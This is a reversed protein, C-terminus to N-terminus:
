PVLPSRHVRREATAEAAEIAAQAALAAVDSGDMDESISDVVARAAQAAALRAAPSVVPVSVSDGGSGSTNSSTAAGSGAGASNEPQDDTPQDSGSSATGAAGGGHSAGPVTRDERNEQTDNDTDDPASDNADADSDPQVTPERLLSRADMDVLLGLVDLSQPGRSPLSAGAAASSGTTKDEDEDDGEDGEDASDRDSNGNDAGNSAAIADAGETGGVTANSLGRNGDNNGDDDDADNDEDEDEDGAGAVEGVGQAGGDLDYGVCSEAAALLQRRMARISSYSPLDLQFTCTHASPLAGDPNDRGDRMVTFPMAFGADNPPLRDRAWIFRLVQAQRASPLDALIKFLWDVLHPHRDMGQSRTNRRLLEVDMRDVGCITSRLELWPLLRLGAMPVISGLGRAISRMGWALEAARARVALRCFLLAEASTRGVTVGRGGPLLELVAGPTSSPVSFTQEYLVADLREISARYATVPSITAGIPAPVGASTAM